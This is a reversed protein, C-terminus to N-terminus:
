ITNKDEENIKLIDSGSSHSNKTRKIERRRTKPKSKNDEKNKINGM